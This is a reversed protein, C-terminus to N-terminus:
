RTPTSPPTRTQESKNLTTRPTNSPNVAPTSPTLKQCSKDVKTLRTDVGTLNQDANALNPNLAPRAPRRHQQPSLPMTHCEQEPTLTAHSPPLPTHLPEQRRLFSPPPSRRPRDPRTPGATTARREVGWRVEGRSPPLSSNPLPHTTPLTTGAQAPIVSPPAPIVPSPRAHTIPAQLASPPPEPRRVGWRVEGRSPPPPHNRGACSHRLPRPSSPSPSAHTIPAHRAPPPPETRRM